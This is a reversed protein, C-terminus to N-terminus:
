LDKKCLRGEDAKKDTPAYLLLSPYSYYLSRSFHQLIRRRQLRRAGKTQVRLVPIDHQRQVSVVARLISRAAQYVAKGRRLRVGDASDGRRARPRAASQALVASEASAGRPKRGRGRRSRAAAQLVARPYAAPKKNCEATHLRYVSEGRDSCRRLRNACTIRGRRHTQEM